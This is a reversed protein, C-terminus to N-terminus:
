SKKTGTATRGGLTRVISLAVSWHCEHLRRFSNQGETGRGRECPGPSAYAGSLNTADPVQGSRQAAPGDLYTPLITAVQIPCGV